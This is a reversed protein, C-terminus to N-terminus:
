LLWLGRSIVSDGFIDDLAVVSSNATYAMVNVQV